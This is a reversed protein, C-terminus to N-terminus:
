MSFIFLFFKKKIRQYTKSIYKSQEPFDKIWWSFDNSALLVIILGVYLICTEFLYVVTKVDVSNWM